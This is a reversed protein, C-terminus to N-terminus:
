RDNASYNAFWVSVRQITGISFIMMDWRMDGFPRFEVDVCIELPWLTLHM